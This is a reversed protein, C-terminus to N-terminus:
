TDLVFDFASIRDTAVMLLTDEDIEYIERVKGASFHTYDSLDPRM